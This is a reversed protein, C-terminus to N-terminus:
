HLGAGPERFVEMSCSIPGAVDLVLADYGEAIAAAVAQAGPMPVPRGDQRWARLTDYSTFVPLAHRGDANVLRPVAMQAGADPDASSGGMAVVPVLVRVELLITRVAAVDGSELAAVLRPDADGRDEIVREGDGPDANGGRRTM